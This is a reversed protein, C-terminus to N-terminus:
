IEDEPIEIGMLQMLKSANFGKCIGPTLQYDFEIEDGTVTSNFSFNKVSPLENTMKGLVIDHTSLLGFSPARHLQKILAKAGKHRDESNTGKLVEDIMFLTPTQEDMQQILSKLRKLEAYFSSVSEELDDQSRMSTFVKLPSIKLSKACVPAGMLALVANLGVTRLFTSKGSMNSGTILCMGGKGSFDFDNSIREHSSILPHGLKNALIVYPTTTIEPFAYNPNLYSFGAVSCLADITGMTDFWKKLALRNQSQWKALKLYWYFDTLLLLNFVIYLMNKRNQLNLLISELKSIAETASETDHKLAMQLGNLLASKFAQKEVKQMQWKLASLSKLGKETAKQAQTIPQFVTALLAFHLFGLLIPAGVQIIEFYSLVIATIMVLPMVMLLVRYLMLNKFQKESKAWTMLDAIAKPEQKGQNRGLAEFDQRFDIAGSLEQIAEQRGKIEEKEAHTSLWQALLVKGYHTSTRNMLQFISHKGFVDLDIHYPHQANFFEHGDDFTKLELSLRQLEEANITAMMEQLSFQSKLQNHWKLLILYAFLFIVLGFGAIKGEGANVAYVIGVLAIIFTFVRSWAVREKRKKLAGAQQQFAKQRSILTEAIHNKM